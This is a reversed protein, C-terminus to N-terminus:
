AQVDVVRRVVDTRLPRRALLLVTALLRWPTDAETLGAAGLADRHAEVTHSGRNKARVPESRESGDYFRSTVQDYRPGWPDAVAMHDLNVLWGGPRM